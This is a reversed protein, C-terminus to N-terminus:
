TPQSPWVPNAPDSTNAPLDRLAQRYTAWETKKADTLPSDNSQTWDSESLLGNRMNIIGVLLRSDQFSKIDSEPKRVAEGDVVVYENGSYEGEIYPQNCELDGGKGGFTYEIVGTDADYKTYRTTM